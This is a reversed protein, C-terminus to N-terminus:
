CALLGTHTLGRDMICQLVTTILAEKLQEREEISYSKRPM